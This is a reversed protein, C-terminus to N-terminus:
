DEISNIIGSLLVNANYDKTESLGTRVVVLDESPIIYVYQGDHGNSSFLDKPVNPYLGGANLWFHAGYEGNSHETPTSIYDVWSQDFLSKNNWIGNQLYLQGFKGWDRTSAWGYSSSVYTGSGDQEVLLSNMGIKDAFDTYLFDIYAQDSDFYDKLKKSLLNSTGSSYNWIETPEAILPKQIQVDAMDKSLFLMKTVDSIGSYDEDWELGSQMRLMHNITLQARKDNEWSDFGLPDNVSLEGRYQLIGYLTAIISKTMSWGLIPTDKTYSDAYRETILYGKYLVLVSRTKQVENHEFASAVAKNLAKYNVNLLLTDIPDGQGHPYPLTSTNLIRNPVLLEDIESAEEQVLLSGIGERYVATRNILGYVDASATQNNQDVSSSALKILPINNDHTNIHELSHGSYYVSTAVYKSAYGSIINLKPVQTIYVYTIIVVIILFIRKIWKM